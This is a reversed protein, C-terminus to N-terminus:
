SDYGVRRITLVSFVDWKVFELGEESGLIQKNEEGEMIWLCFEGNGGNKVM